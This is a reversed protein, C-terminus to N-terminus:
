HNLVHKEGPRLRSAAANSSEDYLEADVDDTGLWTLEITSGTGLAVHLDDRAPLSLDLDKGALRSVGLLFFGSDHEIVLKADSTIEGTVLDQGDRNRITWGDVSMHREDIFTQPLRTSFSAFPYLLTTYEGAEGTMTYVLNGKGQRADTTFSAAQDGLQVIELGSGDAFTSRHHNGGRQDSYHGQWVQQFNTQGKSSEFIDRIIWGLGKLFLVKRFYSVGRDEYGDHTGAFFDWEDQKIWSIVRPNPLKKWKGFGTGGRNSTWGQGQAVGDVIAVNKVFSNKFYAYDELFYRVQYNPLIEQGNARAVLGLMDGHQHDPKHTSLGASMVMHYDGEDWGDRMVYYGTQPLETSLSRPKQRKLNAVSSIQEDRLLWYVGEPVSDAAFYNIEPEDFLTAGLLMFEGM